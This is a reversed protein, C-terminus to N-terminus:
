RSVESDDFVIENHEIVQERAGMTMAPGLVHMVDWLMTRVYGDADPEFRSLCLAETDAPMGLRTISERFMRAGAETLKVRVSTNINIKM